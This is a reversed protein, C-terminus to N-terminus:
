RGPRWERQRRHAEMDRQNSRLAVREAATLPTCACRAGGTALAEAGVVMTADCASCRVVVRKRTADAHGVVTLENDLGARMGIRMVSGAREM